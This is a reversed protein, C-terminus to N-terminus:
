WVLIAKTAASREHSWLGIYCLLANGSRRQTANRQKAAILGFEMVGVKRCLGPVTASVFWSLERCLDHRRSEHNTDAVKDGVKGTCQLPSFEMLAVCVPNDRVQWPSQRLCRSMDLHNTDAVKTIQTWSKGRPSTETITPTISNPSYSARQLAAAQCVVFAVFSMNHIGFNSRITPWFHYSVHWYAIVFHSSTKSRRVVHM